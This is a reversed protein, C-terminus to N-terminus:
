SDCGMNHGPHMPPQMYYSQPHMVRRSRRMGRRLDEDDDEESSSLDLKYKTRTILM